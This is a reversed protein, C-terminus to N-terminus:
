LLDADDDPGATLDEDTALPAAGAELADLAARVGAHLIRTDLLFPNLQRAILREPLFREGLEILINFCQTTLIVGRM